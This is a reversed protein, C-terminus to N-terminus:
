NLIGVFFFMNELLFNDVALYPASGRGDAGLFRANSRWTKKGCIPSRGLAWKAAEEEMGDDGGEM